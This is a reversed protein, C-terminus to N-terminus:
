CHLSCITFWVYRVYQLLQIAVPADSIRKIICNELPLRYLNMTQQFSPSYHDTLVETVLMSSILTNSKILYVLMWGM